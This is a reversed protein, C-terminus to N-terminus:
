KEVFSESMTSIHVEGGRQQWTTSLVSPHCFLRDHRWGCVLKDESVAHMM